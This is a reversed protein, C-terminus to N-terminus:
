NKRLSYKLTVTLINFNATWLYRKIDFDDHEFEIGTEVSCSLRDHFLKTVTFGLPIQIAYNGFNYGKFFYKQKYFNYRLGIGYYLYNNNYARKKAILFSPRHYYAYITPSFEQYSFYYLSRFLYKKTEVQFGLGKNSALLNYDIKQCIMKNASFILISIIFIIIKTKM